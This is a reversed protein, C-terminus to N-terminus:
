AQFTFVLNAAFNWFTTIGIAILKSWYFNKGFKSVLLGLILNNIALGLISVFLFRGYEDLVHSNHSQFTWIRNLFYNTSAALTFGISNAVYKQVKCKEKLFYTMSFDVFVGSLGVVAFKLFKCTILISTNTFM